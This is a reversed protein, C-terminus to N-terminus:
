VILEPLKLSVFFIISTFYNIILLSYNIIRFARLFYEEPSKKYGGGAKFLLSYNIISLTV